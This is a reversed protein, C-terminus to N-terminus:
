GAVRAWELGNGDSAKIADLQQKAQQKLAQLLPQDSPIEKDRGFSVINYLLIGSNDITKGNTTHPGSDPYNVNMITGDPFKVQCTLAGCTNFFLALKPDNELTGATEKRGQVQKRARSLSSGLNGLGPDYASNLPDYTGHTLTESDFTLTGSKLEWVIEMPTWTGTAPDYIGGSKNVIDGGTDMVGSADIDDGFHLALYWAAAYIGGPDPAAHGTPDTRTEPNNGVYAYPDMGQLNGQVTDAALFLGVVPDYYRANYYDLGSLSDNYQGTFGKDTGVSGAAYRKNGYPGYTQNGLVVASGVMDSFASVVSGLIDTLYFQTLTGDFKGILRGGITYYYRSSQSVGSGSYDHEELGFAYITMTTGSSTTSRKLVRQGNVDYLYLEKNTGGDTWQVLRDGVDYSMDATIGNYSRTKLNGWSDYSASYLANNLTSCNTGVPYIGTLQHPHTSDCYLYQEQAGNGNLPGQWTQGLHTYSNSSNYLNGGLSNALSATGCSGNGAAPQSGENGAWVLRNLEDYCFNQTESGGSNSQGPVAAYTTSQSIVNGVPDYVRSNSFITGSSGSGSQWIGTTSAARLNGDVGFHDNALATETTTQFNIDSIQGHIDYGLTVLNAVGVRNNSLGNILGATSDYTQSFVYGTKGGVTTQTTTAQNADNYAQTMQYTPLATSMNWSSPSGVQLTSTVAQGRQDYQFQETATASTGDPYYTTAISQTLQGTPFDTTNAIGLKSQDYTYQMLPHSGSACNGSGDITPATDQVCRARGLLDYSTGIIRSGSVDTLLHGDLGYTYTHTGRDPDSLSTM